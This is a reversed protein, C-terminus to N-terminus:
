NGTIVETLRQLVLSFKSHQMKEGKSFIIDKSLKHAVCTVNKYGQPFYTLSSMKYAVDNLVHLFNTRNNVFRGEGYVTKVSDYLFQLMFSGTNVNRIAYHGQPSAFMILMDDHCPVSIIHVPAQVPTYRVGSVDVFDGSGVREKSDQVQKAPNLIDETKENEVSKPDHSTKSTVAPFDVDDEMDSDDDVDTDSVTDDAYSLGKGLDARDPEGGDHRDPEGGDCRDAHNGEM